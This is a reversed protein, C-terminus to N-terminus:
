VEREHQAATTQGGEERGERREEKEGGGGEKQQTSHCANVKFNNWLYLCYILLVYVLCFKKTNRQKAYARATTQLTAGMGGAELVARWKELSGWGQLVEIDSGQYNEPVNWSGSFSIRQEGTEGSGPVWYVHTVSHNEVHLQKVKNNEEKKRPGKLIQNWIERWQCQDTSKYFKPSFNLGPILTHQPTTM